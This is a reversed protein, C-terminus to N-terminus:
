NGVNAANVSMRGLVHSLQYLPDLQGFGSAAGNLAAAMASPSGGAAPGTTSITTATIAQKTATQAGAISTQLTSLLPAEAAATSGAIANTTNPVGARYNTFATTVGQIATNIGAHNIVGGLGVASALDSALSEILGVGATAIAMTENLVVTCTISYPIEYAQQFNATFERIVVQFRQLSWTLLVQQGARRMYDLLLAREEATSGRFRGSWRIDADDPGMADIVRNGGPLQHVALAQAGGFNIAEPIEFDAFVVGGLTLTVM